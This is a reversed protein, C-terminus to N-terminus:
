AFMGEDMQILMQEVLRGGTETALMEMASRGEFRKRRTRLWELARKLDGLVSQARAIIRVTRVARESEEQSLPQKRSKRHKLTRPNIIIQFIEAQSLGNNILRPIVNTPLGGEVLHVIQQESEASAGLWDQFYESLQKATASAM